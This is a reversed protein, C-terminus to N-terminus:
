PSSLKVAGFSDYVRLARPIPWGCVGSHEDHRGVPDSLPSGLRADALHDGGGRRM